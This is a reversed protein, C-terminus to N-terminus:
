FFLLYTSFAALIFPAFPIISKGSKGRLLLTISFFASYLFAIMIILFGNLSGLSISCLIFLASDGYGLAEKSLYSLMLMILGPVFPLLFYLYDNTHNIADNIHIVSILGTIIATPLAPILKTKIDTYTCYCLFVCVIFHSLTMNNEKWVNKASNIM